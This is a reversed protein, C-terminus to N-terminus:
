QKLKIWGACKLRNKTVACAFGSYELIDETVNPCTANMDKVCKIM